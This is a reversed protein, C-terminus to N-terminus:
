RPPRGGTGIDKLVIPIADTSDSDIRIWRTETYFRDHSVRLMVTERPRTDRLNGRFAGDTSTRVGFAHGDVTVFANPIPAGEADRVTGSLTAPAPATGTESPMTRLAAFLAVAAAVVAGATVLRRVLRSHFAASPESAVPRPLRGSAAEEIANVLEGANAFRDEPDRAIMRDVVRALRPPIEPRINALSPTPDNLISHFLAAPTPAVFPRRGCFLEFFLIGAAYVDTRPDPVEGRLTEPALYAPTGRIGGTMTTAGEPDFFRGLGFDTIRPEGGRALIVNEPKIDGHVVNLAHAAALGRAVGHAIHEAEGLSLPARGMRARLSEGEIFELVLCPREEELLVEFIRVVNPHQIQAAVRAERLVRDTSSSSSPPAVSGDSAAAGLFKIAVFRQLTPDWAKYVVGMGGRGLEERLEFRRVRRLNQPPSSDM